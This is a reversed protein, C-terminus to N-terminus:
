LERFGGLGSMIRSFVSNEGEIEFGMFVPTSLVM